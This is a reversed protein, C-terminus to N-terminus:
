HCPYHFLLLVQLDVYIIIIIIVTKMDRITNVWLKLPIPKPTSPHLYDNAWGRLSPLYDQVERKMEEQTVGM